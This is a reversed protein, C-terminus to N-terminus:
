FSVVYVHSLFLNKLFVLQRSNQTPSLSHVQKHQEKEVNVGNVEVIRDGVRLGTAFAVSGEDVKGIYNGNRTKNNMLHFGYGENLNRKVIHCLRPAPASSIEQVM